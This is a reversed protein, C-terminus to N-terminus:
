NRKVRAARRLRFADSTVVLMVLDRLNLPKSRSAKKEALSGELRTVDAPKAERGVAYVFLKKAIALPLDPDAAIIRKLDVPTALKSGNPLVASADIIGGEDSTRWRGLVDYNEFGFGLADMKVHCSACLPDERHKALRERLSATSNIGEEGGAFSDNGPPPAAPPADLLNDLVWKGRKVPSTRTPNSTVVLIAAQGLLGGRNGQSFEHRRFGNADGEARDKKVGYHVALRDNLLSYNADILESVPRRQRLIHDFFEITEQGMSEKLEDDFGAFREPDPTAADLNRIELWQAAFNEALARSKQDKLMRDVQATLVAPESLKKKAALELLAADPGMSWLFYSLRTALSFNSLEYTRGKKGRLSGPEMRFLFHPSSLLAQLGLRLSLVENNSVEYEKLILKSLRNSESGTAPRRWIRAIMDRVLRKLRRKFPRNSKRDVLWAEAKTPDQADLPGVIEMWQLHLNRDRANKDPHNPRYFDNNFGLTISNVGTKLKTRQEYIKAKNRTASVDFSRWGVNDIEVDLRAAEDGAQDGWAQVRILYEGDRPLKVIQGITASAFLNAHSDMGPEGTVVTMDAAVFRRRAPNDPDEDRLAREALDEALAQFKELHLLSFSMAGGINDFGYGLDDAPLSEILKSKVGLIDVVTREFEYRSLRRVRVRGPGQPDEDAMRRLMKNAAAVFSAKEAPRPQDTDPPPMEQGQVRRRAWRIVRQVRDRDKWTKMSSLDLGADPDPRSHCDNCHAGFFQELGSDLSWSSSAEAAPKPADAQGLLSGAM